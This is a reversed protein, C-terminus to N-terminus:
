VVLWWVVVGIWLLLLLLLLLPLSLLGLLGSAVNCIVYSVSGYRVGCCVM